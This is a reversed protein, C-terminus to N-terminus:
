IGFTMCIEQSPETRGMSGQLSVVYDIYFQLNGSEHFIGKKPDIQMDINTEEKVFQSFCSRFCM